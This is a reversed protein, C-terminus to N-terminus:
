FSYPPTQDIPQAGAASGLRNIMVGAGAPIVETDKIPFGITVQRWHAGDYYYSKWIGADLLQVKDATAASAASVWGPLTQLGSELLTTSVPWASSLYTVGSNAVLARRTSRPVEGAIILRLPERSRRGYLIVSDPHIVVNSADPAGPASETWREATTNYYYIKAVGSKEIRLNDSNSVSSGGAVGSGVPFLNGLTGAAFIEYTDGEAGARIGLAALDTAESADITLTTATNETTTSILFSRGAAAGSTIKLFHPLAPQSLEGSAWGADSNSITQAGVGTIRGSMQGDAVARTLLPTSLTTYTLTAGSGPKIAVTVYGVPSSVFEQASVFVASWAFLLGLIVAAPTFKGFIKM